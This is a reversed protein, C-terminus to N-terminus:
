QTVRIEMYLRAHISMHRFSLYKVGTCIVADVIFDVDHAFGTGGVRDFLVCRVLRAWSPASFSLQSRANMERRSVFVCNIKASAVREM